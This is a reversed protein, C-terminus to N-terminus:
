TAALDIDARYEVTTNGGQVDSSINNDGLYSSIEQGELNYVNPNVLPVCIQVVLDPYNAKWQSQTMNNYYAKPLIAIDNAGVTNASLGTGINLKATYIVGNIGNGIIAAIGSNKWGPFDESNNNMDAVALNLM